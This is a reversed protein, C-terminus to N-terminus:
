LLTRLFAINWFVLSRQEDTYRSESDVANMLKLTPTTKYSLETPYRYKRLGLLVPGGTDLSEICQRTHPDFWYYILEELSTLGLLHIRSFGMEALSRVVLSRVRAMDGIPASRGVITDYPVAISSFSSEWIGKACRLVNELSNGQVVPLLGGKGFADTAEPLIDLTRQSDGLFDPSVVLDPQILYAAKKLEQISCPKLEENTSNDLYCIKKSSKYYQVLRDSKLVEKALAFNFDGLPLVEDSLENPCELGLKIKTLPVRGHPIRTTVTKPIEVQRSEADGMTLSYNRTVGRDTFEKLGVCCGYGEPERQGLGLGCIKQGLNFVGCNGCTWKQAPPRNGM